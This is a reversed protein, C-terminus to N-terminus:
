ARIAGSGIKAKHQEVKTGGVEVHVHLHMESALAALYRAAGEAQRPIANPSNTMPYGYKAATEPEFQFGGMASGDTKDNSGYGTESGFIGWLLGFPVGYKKAAAAVVGRYPSNGGGSAEEKVHSIGYNGGSYKEVVSNWASSPMSGTVYAATTTTAAGMPTTATKGGGLFSALVMGPGMSAMSAVMPAGLYSADHMSAGGTYAAGHIGPRSLKEVTEKFKQVADSFTTSTGEGSTPTASDGLAHKLLQTAAWPHPGTISEGIGARTDQSYQSHVNYLQSEMWKQGAPGSWEKGFKKEAAAAVAKVAKANAQSEINRRAAGSKNGALGTEGSFPLKTDFLALPLAAALSGAGALATGGLAGLGEAATGAAATAGGGSAAAAVADAAAGLDFPASSEAAGEAADAADSGAGKLLKPLLKKLGYAGLLGAGTVLPHGTLAGLVTGELKKLESEPTTLTQANHREHLEKHANPKVPTIKGHKEFEELADAAAQSGGLEQYLMNRKIKNGEGPYLRQAEKTVKEVYSPNNVNEQSEWYGIGAMKMFAYVQPNRWAGQGISGIEGLATTAGEGHFMKNSQALVNVQSAIGSINADRGRPMSAYGATTALGSIGPLVSEIQSGPFATLAARAEGVTLAANAPSSGRGTAQLMPGLISSLASSSLGTVKSYGAIVEALMGAQGPKPSLGVSMAINRLAAESEGFSVGTRSQVGLMEHGIGTYTSPGGTVKGMSLAINSASTEIKVFKDVLAGVGAVGALGAVSKGIGEVHTGVNKVSQEVKGWSDEQQKLVKEVAESGSRDVILKLIAEVPVAANSDVEM